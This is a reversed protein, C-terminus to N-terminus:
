QSVCMVLGEDVWGKAVVEAIDARSTTFRHNSDYNKKGASTYAANYARYLPISAAPCVSPTSSTASPIPMSASFTKGEYNLQQKNAPTPKIQLSKILDCEKDDATYFHSNPGPNVSGYFRCVSVYGGSNFKRGTRTWQGPAGSDLLTRDADNSAYFYVGGPASPFDKTNQYETIEGEILPPPLTLLVSEYEKGYLGIRNFKPLQALATLDWDFRTEVLGLNLGWYATVWPQGERTQMMPSAEFIGGDVAQRRVPAGFTYRDTFKGFNDFSEFTAPECAGATVVEAIQTAVSGAVFPKPLVVNECQGWDGTYVYLIPLAPDGYSSYRFFASRHAGEERDQGTPGNPLDKRKSIVPLPKRFIAGTGVYRACDSQSFVTRKWDACYNVYYKELSEQAVVAFPTSLLVAALLAYQLMFARKARAHVVRHTLRPVRWHNRRSM